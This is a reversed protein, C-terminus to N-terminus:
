GNAADGETSAPAEAVPETSDNAREVPAAATPHFEVPEQTPIVEEECAAIVFMAAILALILPYVRKGPM